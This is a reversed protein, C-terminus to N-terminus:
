VKTLLIGNNYVVINVKEDLRKNFMKILDDALCNYREINTKKIHKILSIIFTNRKNIHLDVLLENTFRDYDIADSIKIGLHELECLIEYNVVKYPMKYGEFINKYEPIMIKEQRHWIYNIISTNMINDIITNKKTSIYPNEILDNLMKILLGDAMILPYTYTHTNHWM